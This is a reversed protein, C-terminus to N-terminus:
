EALSEKERRKLEAELQRLMGKGFLRKRWNREPRPWQRM